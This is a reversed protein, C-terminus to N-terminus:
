LFSFSGFYSARSSHVFFITSFFCFFASVRKGFYTPHVAEGTELFGVDFSGLVPMEVYGNERFLISQPCLYGYVMGKSHFSGLFTAIKGLIIKVTKRNSLLVLEQSHM